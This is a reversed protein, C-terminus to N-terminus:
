ILFSQDRLETFLKTHRLLNSLNNTTFYHGQVTCMSVSKILNGNSHAFM